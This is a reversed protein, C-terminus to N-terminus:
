AEYNIISQCKLYSVKKLVGGKEEERGGEDRGCAEYGV